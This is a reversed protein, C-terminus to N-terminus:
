AAPTITLYPTASSVCRGHGLAGSWLWLMIPKGPKAKVAAIVKTKPALHNDSRRNPFRSRLIHSERLILFDPAEARGIYGINTNQELSNLM